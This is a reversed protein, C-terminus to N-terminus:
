SRRLAVTRDLAEAGRLQLRIGVRVRGRQPLSRVAARSLRVRVARRQGGRLAVRARGLRKGRFSLTITGGCAVRGTCRVTTTAVRGRVTVAGVTATVSPLVATTTGPDVPVVLPAAGAAATSTGTDVVPAPAAAVVASAASYGTTTGFANSARVRVRFSNGVAGADLAFTTSTVATAVCAGGDAACRQWQYAVSGPSDLWSGATASLVQGARPEGSVSPATTNRPPGQVVSMVASTGDTSGRANTATVRVRLRQGQDAATLTYSSAPAAIDACGGGNSDCRQWRYAIAPENTWTGSTATLKQGVAQTGSVAPAATLEPAGPAAYINTLRTIAAAVNLRGGTVTKGQWAAVPDASGLLASKVQGALADPRHAFLLAAAGAVHPSAMSTGSKWGYGGGPVTSYVSAGPAALDVNTAGYNSFTTPLDSGGSAAVCILNPAPENCPSQATVDNDDGIGDSGGNGAAVVYLTGPYAAMVDNYPQYTGPGGLSANAVRAGKRGAYAFAEVIDSSWAGNSDGFVDLAMLRTNWGVGTVGTGNDGVAGITGSVHTGHGSSLGTADGPANTADAFNWGRWDDVFGNGDDDVGNTEKGGGSEGPNTWRNADLDPHNDIGTDVVAVTVAASGTTVDWAEPADIDADATFNTFQATNNLGWLDAFLPDNPTRHPEVILNPVAYRVGAHQELTDIARSVSGDVELLQLGPVGLGEVIQAGADSRAETRDAASAGRDFAVIVHGPVTEAAQASATAPALVLCAAALALLRRLKATTNPYTTL